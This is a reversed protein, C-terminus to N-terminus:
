KNSRKRTKACNRYKYLFCNYIDKHIAYKVNRDKPKERNIYIKKFLKYTFVWNLTTTDNYYSSPNWSDNNIILFDSKM